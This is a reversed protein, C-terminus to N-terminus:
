VGSRQGVPTFGLKYHLGLSAPNDERVQVSVTEFGRARMENFLLSLAKAAIGQRRMAPAIAIGYSFQRGCVSHVTIGGAHRGCAHIFWRLDSADSGIPRLSIQCDM